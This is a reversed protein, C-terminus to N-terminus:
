ARGGKVVSLGRAGIQDAMESAMDKKPGGALGLRSRGVPGIGLHDLLQRVEAMCEREIMYAPHKTPGRQGDVFLGERKIIARAERMRCITMAAVEVLPWDARDLVGSESMDAVLQKWVTKARDPLDGPMTPVGRGGVLTTASAHRSGSRQKLENPKPKAGKM